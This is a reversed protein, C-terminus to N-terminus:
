RKKKRRGAVKDPKVDGTRIVPLPRGMAVLSQITDLAAAMAEQGKNGKDGGVRALAQAPTDVTLVGFCCPVGTAVTIQMLGAAVVDGLIVDHRTDGKMICGLCVVAAYKGSVAAARALAPLEFSGPAHVITLAAHNEGVRSIYEEVAGELLKDTISATYRSVIIAVAPVRSIEHRKGM